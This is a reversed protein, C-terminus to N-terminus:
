GADVKGGWSIIRAKAAAAEAEPIRKARALVISLSTWAMEDNPALETARQAAAVAEEARGLKLLVMGLAHWGEAFGPVLAVSQRYLREAGALDGVALAGDGEDKIREHSEMGCVM